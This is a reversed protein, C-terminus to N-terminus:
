SDEEDIAQQFQIDLNPESDSELNWITESNLM